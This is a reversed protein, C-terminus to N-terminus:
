RLLNFYCIAAHFTSFSLLFAFITLAPSRRNKGSIGRSLDFPARTVPVFVTGRFFIKRKGFVSLNKYMSVSYARM